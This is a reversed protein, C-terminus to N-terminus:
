LLINNVVVGGSEKVVGIVEGTHGFDELRKILDLPADTFLAMGVGMNFVRFAEEPPVGRKLIAEAWCPLNKINIEAGHNNLVRKIKTFGGGTIHAAAKALGERMAELVKSYDAVPKLFVEAASAGCVEDGPKFLKRILSFGNAHPGTSAVGVIYDGPRVPRPRAERVALVTCVVDIGNVVDPMIATEGGLVAAKIRSAAEAVGRFVEVVRDELGPSVAVYDVVAVTRFGDCVVDNVNVFVCDWGATKLRGGELLWLTKTGVGDVHLAIESGGLEIYRVYAGASGGLIEEAARHVSRHRELDVGADRYRM